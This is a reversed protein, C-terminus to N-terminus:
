RALARARDVVGQRNLNSKPPENDNAPLGHFDGILFDLVEIEETTISPRGTGLFVKVMRPAHDPHGVFRKKM